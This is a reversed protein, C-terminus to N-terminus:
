LHLKIIRLKLGIYFKLQIKLLGFFINARIKMFQKVTDLSMHRSPLLLFFTLSISLNSTTCSTSNAIFRVKYPRKHLKPIRYMIPLKLEKEDVRVDIHPRLIHQTFSQIRYAATYLPDTQIVINDAVENLM